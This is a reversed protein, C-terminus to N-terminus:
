SIYCSSNSHKYTELLYGKEQVKDRVYHCDIEIHKTREHFIPNTGIHIATQNDYWLNMSVSILFGLEGLETAAKAMSCYVVEASSRAVM